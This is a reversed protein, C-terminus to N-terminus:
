EIIKGRFALAVLHPTNMADFKRKASEIHSRITHESLDLITAMEPGTKGDAVWKVVEKERPTLYIAPVKM